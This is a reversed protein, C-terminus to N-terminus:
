TRLFANLEGYAQVMAELSYHANRGSPNPLLFVAAEALRARQLGPRTAGGKRKSFLVSYLTLGLIAVVRPRYREIKSLLIARGEDYDQSTLEHIGSSPRAVMNTLGLGWSPLRWDDAYTLLQPVLGSHCLVKWFRNSYGAFHHGVAASRLGPNIGVFLVQVDSGIYDPLGGAKPDLAAKRKSPRNLSPGAM